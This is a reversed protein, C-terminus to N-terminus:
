ANLASSIPDRFEIEYEIALQGINTSVPGAVVAYSLSAFALDDVSNVPVLMGSNGAFPVNTGAVALVSSVKKWSTDVPLPVSLERGSASSIDFSKCNTGSVYALQLATNTDVANKFGALIITGVTTSGVNGVLKVNAWLVRYAGFNRAQNNLWRLHPPDLRAVNGFAGSALVSTTLGCPTLCVQGSATGTASTSITLVNDALADTHVLERMRFKM